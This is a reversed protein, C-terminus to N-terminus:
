NGTGSDLLQLMELASNANPTVLSAYTVPCQARFDKQHSANVARKSALAVPVSFCSFTDCGSVTANIRSQL